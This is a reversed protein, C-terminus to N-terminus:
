VARQRTTHNRLKEMLVVAAEYKKNLKLCTELSTMAQAFDGDQESRIHALAMNFYIKYLGQFTPYLAIARKYGEIAEDFRGAKASMVGKNNYHRVVETPNTTTASLDRAQDDFGHKFLDGIATFKLDPKDPNLSILRRFSDVSKGPDKMSLYMQAMDAIREINEPALKDAATMFPEAEAYRKLRM